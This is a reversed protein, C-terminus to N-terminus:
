SKKAFCKSTAFIMVNALFARIHKLIYVCTLRLSFIYLNITECGRGSRKIVLDNTETSRDKEIEGDSTRGQCQKDM